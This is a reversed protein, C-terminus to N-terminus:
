RLGDPFPTQSRCRAGRPYGYLVVRGRTHAAASLLLQISPEPEDPKSMDFIDVASFSKAPPLM